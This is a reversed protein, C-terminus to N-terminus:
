FHNKNLKTGFLFAIFRMSALMFYFLATYPSASVVLHEYIAYAFTMNHSSFSSYRTVEPIIPPVVALSILMFINHISEWLPQAYTCTIFIYPFIHNDVEFVLASILQCVRVRDNVSIYVQGGFYKQHNQIIYYFFRSLKKHHTIQTKQFM